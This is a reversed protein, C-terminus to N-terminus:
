NTKELPKTKNKQKEEERKRQEEQESKKQDEERKKKEEEQKKRDEEEKKKKEEEEKKAQEKLDTQHYLDPSRYNSAFSSETMLNGMADYAKFGWTAKLAGDSKKDFSNPKEKEIRRGDYTGFFDIFLQHSTAKTQILIYNETNNVFKLNRSGPYIGADTGQPNYYQVAYSHAHRETVQVGTDVMARFTTTSVQCLGGGAVPLTDNQLIVLEKKYGAEETVPGLYDNFSFEQGPAVTIGDFKLAGFKINYIRNEPSGQWGSVGRGILNKIGNEKYNKETILPEAIKTVLDFSYDGNNVGSLIKEKMRNIDLEVGIKSATEVEIEKINSPNKEGEFNMDLNEEDLIRFRANQPAQYIDKGIRGLLEDLRNNNFSIYLVIDSDKKNEEFTFLEGEKIKNEGTSFPVFVIWGRLDEKKISWSKQEHTDPELFKFELDQKLIKETIERARETDKATILPYTTRIPVEIPRDLLNAMTEKIKDKLLNEKVALGTQEEITSIAGTSDIELTAEKSKKEASALKEDVFTQIREDNISFDIDVEDKMFLSLFKIKLNALENQQRGVYFAKQITSDTNIKIELEDLGAIWTRSKTSFVLKNNEFEKIKASLKTKAEERSLKSLDVGGAKVGAIIKNTFIFHYALFFICASVVIGTIIFVTRTAKHSKILSPKHM